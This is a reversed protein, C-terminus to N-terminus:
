IQQNSISKINKLIAQKTWEPLIHKKQLKDLISSIEAVIVPNDNGIEISGELLNLRQILKNNDKSIAINLDKNSIQLKKTLLSIFEKENDNLEDYLKDDFQNDLLKYYLTLFEPSV